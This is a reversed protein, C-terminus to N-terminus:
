RQGGRGWPSFTLIAGAALLVGAFVFWVVRLDTGRGCMGEAPAVRYRVDCGVDALGLILFVVAVALTILAVAVQRGNM